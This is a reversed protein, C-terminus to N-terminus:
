VDLQLSTCFEVERDKVMEWKGHVLHVLVGIGDYLHYGLPSFDFILGFCSFIAILHFFYHRGFNLLRPQLGAFLLRATNFFAFFAAFVSRSFLTFFFFLSFIYTHISLLSSSSCSFLTCRDDSRWM